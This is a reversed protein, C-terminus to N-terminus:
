AAAPLGDGSGLGSAEKEQRAESRRRWQSAAQSKGKGKQVYTTHTQQEVCAGRMARGAESLM